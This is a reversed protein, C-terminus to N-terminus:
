GGFLFVYDLTWNEFRFGLLTPKSDFELLSRKNSLSLQWMFTRRQGQLWDGPVTVDVPAQFFFCMSSRPSKRSWNKLRWGLNPIDQHFLCKSENWVLLLGLYKWMGIQKTQCDISIEKGDRRCVETLTSIQGRMTQWQSDESIKDGLALSNINVQMREM